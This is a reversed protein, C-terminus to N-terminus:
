LNTFYELKYGVSVVVSSIGDSVAASVIAALSAPVGIKKLFSESSM